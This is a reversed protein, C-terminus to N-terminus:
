VNETGTPKESSIDKRLPKSVKLRSSGTTIYTMDTGLGETKLSTIPKTPVVKLLYKNDWTWKGGSRTPSIKRAEINPRNEFNSTTHKSSFM